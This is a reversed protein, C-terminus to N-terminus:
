GAQPNTVTVSERLVETGTAVGQDGEHIMRVEYTGPDLSIVNAVYNVGFPDQSACTATLPTFALRITIVNGSITHSAASRVESCQTIFSGRVTIFRFGGEATVVPPQIVPPQQEQQFFSIDLTPRNNVTTLDCGAVLLAAALGVASRLARRALPRVSM